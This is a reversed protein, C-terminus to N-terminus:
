GREEIIVESLPKGVSFKRALEERERDSVAKYRRKEKDNVQVFLGSEKFFREYKEQLDSEEIQPITKLHEIIVEEIRKKQTRARKELRQWLEDPLKITLEQM